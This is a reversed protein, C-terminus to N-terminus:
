YFGSMLYLLYYLDHAEVIPGISPMVGPLCDIFNGKSKMSFM